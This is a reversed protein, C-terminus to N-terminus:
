AKREEARKKLQEALDEWEDGDGGPGREQSERGEQRQKTTLGSSAAPDEHMKVDIEGELGKENEMGKKASEMAVPEPLTEPDAEKVGKQEHMEEDKNEDEKNKNEGERKKEKRARKKEVKEEFEEKRIMANRFRAETKLM